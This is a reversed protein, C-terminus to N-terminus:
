HPSMMAGVLIKNIWLMAPTYTKLRMEMVAASGFNSRLEHVKVLRM